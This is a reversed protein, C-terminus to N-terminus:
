ALCRPNMRSSRACGSTVAISQRRVAGSHRAGSLRQAPQNPKALEPMIRLMPLKNPCSPIMGVRRSLRAQRCYAFRHHCSDRLLVRFLLEAYIPCM